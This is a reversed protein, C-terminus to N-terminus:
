SELNIRQLFIRSKKLWDLEVKLQRIQQYLSAELQEREKDDRLRRDSFKAKFDSSYRKPQSKM